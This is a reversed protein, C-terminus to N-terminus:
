KLKNNKDMNVFLFIHSIFLDTIKFYVYFYYLRVKDSRIFSVELKHNRVKNEIKRCLFNPILVTQQCSKSKILQLIRNRNLFSM